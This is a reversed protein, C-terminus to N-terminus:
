VFFYVESVSPDWFLRANLGPPQQLHKQLASDIECGDTTRTTGMLPERSVSHQDLCHFFSIGMNNAMVDIKRRTLRYNANHDKWAYVLELDGVEKKEKEMLINVM